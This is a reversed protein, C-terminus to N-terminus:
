VQYPHEEKEAGNPSKLVIDYVALIRAVTQEASYHQAKQRAAEGMALRRAPSLALQNIADALAQPDECPVVKGIVGDEVLEANDGVDTVVCPLGSAMAELITFPMAEFRSPLVFVDSAQLLQPVDDRFGLFRVSGMLGLEGSRAELEARQPGDGVLWLQPSSGKAELLHVAELLVDIGKQADLRGVCCMVTAQAPTGFINRLAQRDGGTVYHTLDIGNPIITTRSRPALGKGLAERCVRSSVYILYDTWRHNLLQEVKQYLWRKCRTFTNQGYVYYYPPLHVTVVVPLGLVRGALRGFASARPSHVHLLDVGHLRILRVLRLLAAADFVHRPKWALVQAGLANARTAFDPSTSAIVLWNYLSPDSHRLLSLLHTEVGGVHLADGV